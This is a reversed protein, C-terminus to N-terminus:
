DPKFLNTVGSRIGYFRDFGGRRIPDLKATKGLHWKGTMFTHYGADGLVQAITVCEDVLHGRYGRHKWDADMWGVGAQQPHLGTLLAARSPCCRANNYFQTFRVGGGALRDLNPTAIESGYCGVDSYGMDDALIVLINPRALASQVFGFVALLVMLRKM